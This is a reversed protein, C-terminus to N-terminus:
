EAQELKEYVWAFPDPDPPTTDALRRSLTEAERRLTAAKAQDGLRARTEALHTLADREAWAYGCSRAIRLAPELDDRARDVEQRSAAEAAARDLRIRGRLVLADAQDLLMMRPAALRLAAEVAALAEIWRVQRREYEARALLMSPLYRIQHARRFVSEAQSLHGGADTFRGALTALIGLLTRCRAIHEQWGERECLRLNAEIIAQAREGRGLRILLKAWVVGNFGYLEAGAHRTRREIANAADFAASAEASRGQAALTDALYCLSNRSAYGPGAEAARALALADRARLESEALRGLHVLLEAENGLDIALNSSEGLQKMTAICDQRFLLGAVFEGGNLAFLAVDNLMWGLRSRGLVRECVQRREADRVFGLACRLGEAPAPLSLFIRGNDLREQYIRFAAPFDGAELLLEIATLVPQLQAVSTAGEGSPAGVLLGAASAASYQGWGLLTKRFHDRLVPHCSWLASGDEAEDRILLHERAMLGLEHSLGPDNWGGLAEAAAPLGHALTLITAEPMPARFLSVLGLLAVRPEPLRQEYSLLLRGLKGELTGTEEAHAADFVQDVLRTPDGKARDELTLAFVRLALPHGEFRRSVAERDAVSGRVGAEHLLGAGESPSLFELDLARFGDGAYPTLDPFPFRSTLVVLSGTAHRCAGDLLDHLDQALFAGYGPQGPLEQVVELGDLVLLVDRARLMALAADGPEATEPPVRVGLVDAMFAALAAAFHKVERDAYFSWFFLAAFPRGRAGHKRKLWHGILSTKGLGGMGTVGIVRVAPDACWRDLRELAAARGTYRDDETTEHVWKEAM